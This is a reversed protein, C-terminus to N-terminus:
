TCANNTRARWRLATASTPATSTGTRTTTRWRSRSAARVPACTWRAACKAGAWGPNLLRIRILEAIPSRPVLARADSKFSLGAFWAEGTLYAAPIREEIRRLFLALM